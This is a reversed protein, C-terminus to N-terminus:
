FAGAVDLATYVLAGALVIALIQARRAAKADGQQAPASAVALAALLLHGLPRSCTNM